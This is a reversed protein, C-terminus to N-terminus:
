HCQCHVHRISGDARGPVSLSGPLLVQVVDQPVLFTSCGLKRAISIVYNANQTRETEALLGCLPSRPLVCEQWHSHCSGDLRAHLVSPAAERSLCRATHPMSISLCKLAM